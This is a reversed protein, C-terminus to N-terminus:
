PFSQLADAYSAFRHNAPHLLRQRYKSATVPMKKRGRPSGRRAAVRSAAGRLGLPGVGRPFFEESEAELLVDDSPAYCNVLRGRIIHDIARRAAAGDQVDAPLSSGFLHVSEVIGRSSPRLGAAISTTAAATRAPAAPPGGLSGYALHMMCHFIVESGLSHGLLRVRTDLNARDRKFDTVFRALHRGNARAIRRGAELARRQHRRVHAGLTNSDYSFGVVPPLQSGKRVGGRGGRGLRALMERAIVVKELAGRDDNRLGHVMIVLEPSGRVADEFYRCPYLRYTVGPRLARGDVLNYCGRTTIRPIRHTHAANQLPERGPIM